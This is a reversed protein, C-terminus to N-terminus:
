VYMKPQLVVSELEGGIQLSDGFQPLRDKKLCRTTPVFSIGVRDVSNGACTHRPAWMRIHSLTGKGTSPGGCTHPRHNEM